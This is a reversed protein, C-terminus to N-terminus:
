DARLRQQVSSGRFNRRGAPRTYLRGLPLFTRSALLFIPVTTSCARQADLVRQAQLHTEDNGLEWSLLLCQILPDAEIVSVADDASTAVVVSVLRQELESALAQAARGGAARADIEHHVLLAKMGLRRFIPEPHATM